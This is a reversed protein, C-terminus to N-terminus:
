FVLEEESEFLDSKDFQFTYSPKQKAGFGFCVRSDRILVAVTGEISTEFNVTVEYGEVAFDATSKGTEEMVKDEVRHTLFKRLRRKLYKVHTPSADEEIIYESKKMKEGITRDDM